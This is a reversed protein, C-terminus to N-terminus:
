EGGKYKELEKRLEMDLFLRLRKRQRKREEQRKKRARAAPTPMRAVARAELESYLRAELEEERARRKLEAKELAKRRRYFQYEAEVDEMKALQEKVIQNIYWRRFHEREIQIQFMKRDVLAEIEM